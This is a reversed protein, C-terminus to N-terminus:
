TTADANQSGDQPGNGTLGLVARSTSTKDNGIEGKTGQLAGNLFVRPRYGSLAQPVLEDTARLTAREAQLQPNTQYAGVLADALQTAGAPGPALALATSALAAAAVGRRSLGHSTRM